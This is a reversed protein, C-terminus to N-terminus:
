HGALSIPSNHKTVLKWWGVLGGTPGLNEGPDTLADTLAGNETFGGGTGDNTHWTATDGSLFIDPPSGTPRSGDSGLDVPFGNADLFMRRNAAVSLDIYTGYDFWLDALNGDLKGSGGTDAGIATTTTYDILDDVYTPASAFQDVDDVYIHRNAPNSLDWSAIVHHWTGPSIVGVQSELILVSSADTASRATLRVEGVADISVTMNFSQAAHVRGFAAVDTNVWFSITGQKSDTTTLGSSLYDNTGDFEVGNPIYPSDSTANWNTGDCWQVVYESDNYVTDGAAGVPNACQAHASQISLNFALFLGVLLLAKYNIPSINM